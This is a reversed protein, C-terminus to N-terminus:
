KLVEIKNHTDMKLPFSMNQTGSIEITGELKTFAEQSIFYGEKIAFLLTVNGQIPGSYFIDMGMNQVTANMTGSISSTIKACDLGNIKEIGEFKNESKIIQTTKSTASVSTITDNRTWTDGSTVAKEPLDPFINRFFQELNNNTPLGEVSYEIKAAEKVDIEKGRPSLTM